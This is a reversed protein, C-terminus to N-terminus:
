PHAEPLSRLRQLARHLLLSVAERPKGLRDALEATTLGEIKALVIVERYQEPLADLKRLLRLVGEQEALVRSPTRFNVLQPTDPRSGSPLPVVQAADRQRRAHYRALDALVHSAVASLWQMFSGPSRYTFRDLDRFARLFTEQLVDDVELVGHLEAGLRCHILVALRRRYKEFLVTFAERDGQRIRDILGFTSTKTQV